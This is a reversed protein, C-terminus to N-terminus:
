EKTEKADTATKFHDETLPLQAAEDFYKKQRGSAVWLILVVFATAMFVTVIMHFTISEM